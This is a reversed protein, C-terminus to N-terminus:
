ASMRHVEGDGCLATKCDKLVFDPAGKVYLVNGEETHDTCLVSM